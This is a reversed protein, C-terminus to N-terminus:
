LLARLEDLLAEVAADAPVKRLPTGKVFLLFEDIGGALGVDAERAEGPGNVICGMVAVTLKKGTKMGAVAESVEAAVKELCVRTRGCTPCSVVNIGSSNLGAASLIDKAARVEQVPDGTLSVRITDGVGMALLAGIGIASRLRGAENAGAETVGIHLPYRFKESAALNAEITRAVDSAKISLCIDTFGFKELASINEEASMILAEATPGGCKELIDRRVSGSNVGVRIPVKGAACAKAVRRVRDESGINGPNIRIKDAGSELAALALRYDFHIDASLPLPSRARIKGFARASEMDPVALRVLDCGAEALAAIQECAAEVDTTPVNTMSQISIPAGAGIVLGGANIATTIKRKM